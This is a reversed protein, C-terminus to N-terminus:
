VAWEVDSCAKCVRFWFDRNRNPMHLNGWRHMCGNKKSERPEFNFKPRGTKHKV